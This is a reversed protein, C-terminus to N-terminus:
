MLSDHYLYVLKVFVIKCMFITVQRAIVIHKPACSKFNVVNTHLNIDNKLQALGGNTALNQNNSIYKENFGLIVNFKSQLWKLYM